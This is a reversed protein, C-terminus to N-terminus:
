EKMLMDRDTYFVVVSLGVLLFTIICKTFQETQFMVSFLNLSMHMIIIALISRGAKYYVWNMLFAAPFISLIFNLAYAWHMSLLENQYYGNIAFLPWHWVDWLIAFMITAKLVSRGSKLSDVGYGRWGLEEFTPALILIILVIIIESGSAALEPALMFQNSSEGFLLSLSTALFLAVPMILLIFAWIEPKVLSVDLLRKKFDAKIDNDGSGYIMFISVIFPTLMGILIFPIKYIGLEESYSSVAAM